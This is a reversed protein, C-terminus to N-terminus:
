QEQTLTLTSDPVVYSVLDKYSLFTLYTLLIVVMVELEELVAKDALVVMVEAVVEAVEPTSKDELTITSLLVETKTQVYPQDEEAEVEVLVVLVV